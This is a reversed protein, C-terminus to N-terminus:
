RVLRTRLTGILPTLPPSALYHGGCGVFKNAPEILFDPKRHNPSLCFFGPKESFDHIIGQSISASVQTFAGRADLVSPKIELVQCEWTWLCARNKLLLYDGDIMARVTVGDVTNVRVETDCSVRHWNRRSELFAFIISAIALRNSDHIYFWRFRKDENFRNNVFWITKSYYNKIKNTWESTLRQKCPSLLRSSPALGIM